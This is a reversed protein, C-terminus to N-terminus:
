PRYVLPTATVPNVQVMVYNKIGSLSSSPEYRAPVVTFYDSNMGTLPLMLGSATIEFGAYSAGSAAGNGPPITGTTIGSASLAPSLTTNDTVVISQPLIAIRTIPQMTGASNTTWVQLASYGSTSNLKILRLEMTANHSSALQRALNITDAVQQGGRNLNDSEMVSNLAPVSAATLLAVISIVVLLEVLSFGGANRALRRRPFGWGIILALRKM